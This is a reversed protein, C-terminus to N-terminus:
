HVLSKRMLQVLLVLAEHEDLGHDVALVHYIEEDRVMDSAQELESIVKLALTM